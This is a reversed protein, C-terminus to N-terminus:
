GVAEREKGNTRGNKTMYVGRAEGDHVWLNKEEGTVVSIRM